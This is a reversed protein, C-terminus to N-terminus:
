NSPPKLNQLWGGGNQRYAAMGREGMVATIAGTAEDSLAALQSSRDAASLSPDRRIADARKSIDGQVAVVQQTTTAPLELRDVLRSVQIYNQDTQQKYDAIRDAGIGDQIKALLDPQHAEREHLQDQTLKGDNAGYQSDFDQQAKFIARFEDETPNFASLNYRLQSAVNSTRLQYEFLEAPSLEATIEAQQEKQLYDLKELDEPLMVGNAGAFLGGKMDTFDSLIAQVRDYKERSLGVTTDQTYSVGLPNNSNDDPGLLDKMEKSEQRSIAGLGMATRTDFNGYHANWFPRPGLQAVVSKRLGSYREDLQAKVIARIVNPPFGAARLRAVLSKLDDAKLASWTRAGPNGGQRDPPAALRSVPALAGTASGLPGLHFVAPANIAVLALLAANAALSAAIILTSTKIAM